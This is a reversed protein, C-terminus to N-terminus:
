SSKSPNFIQGAFLVTGTQDERILFFFPHDAVFDIKKPKPAADLYSGVYANFTFAKTGKEDIEISVKQYLLVELELDDFVKSAEFGFEIKFKPIRFKGVEVKYSPIHNDLFGRTSTMRELLNGLGDKKNPLYFYMSFERNTDDRGARYPLRLVKFGNYATIYQKEYSRMFPVSVSTGNLLHFDKDKTMSKDFKCEWAGKFYLANGYIWDTDKKRVSGPPLLNNILGNSRNSAWENVEMRVQEAKSRFDVQFFNAKFFNMLLDKSSPSLSLSQDMWVGNVVAIKPGGNKSGDALVVCAIERFVANLEDLSSARLLSLTEKVIVDDYGSTSAAMTLVANISATSFVFNSNKAVASIVKGALFLAVDNQKEMAKRVDIARPVEIETLTPSAVIIEQSKSLKRKKKNKRDM